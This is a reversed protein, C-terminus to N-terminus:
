VYFMSDLRLRGEESCHGQMKSLANCRWDGGNEVSSWNEVARSSCYYEVFMLCIKRQKLRKM